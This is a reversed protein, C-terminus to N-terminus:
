WVLGKQERGAGDGFMDIKNCFDHWTTIKIDFDQKKQAFDANPRCRFTSELGFRRMRFCFNNWKTVNKVFLM